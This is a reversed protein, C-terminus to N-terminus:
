VDDQPESFKEQELSSKESPKCFRGRVRPRSEALRKRVDYRVQKRFIREERKRRYRELKMKREEASCREGLNIKKRHSSATGSSSVSPSYFHHSWDLWAIRRNSTTSSSAVSGDMTDVHDDLEFNTRRWIDVEVNKESTSLAPSRQVFNKGGHGHNSGSGSGTGTNNDNSSGNGNGSSDTGELVESEDSDSKSGGVDKYISSPATHKEYPEEYSQKEPYEYNFLVEDQVDSIEKKRKRHINIADKNVMSEEKLRHLYALRVEEPTMKSNWQRRLKRGQPVSAESPKTAVFNDVKSSTTEMANATDNRGAIAFLAAVAINTDSNVGNLYLQKESEINDEKSNTEFREQVSLKNEAGQWVADKRDHLKTPSNTESLRNRFDQVFDTFGSELCNPEREVQEEKREEETGVTSNM